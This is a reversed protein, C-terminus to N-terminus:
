CTSKDIQWREVLLLDHVAHQYALQDTIVVLVSALPMPQGPSKPTEM